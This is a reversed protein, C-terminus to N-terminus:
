KKQRSHSRGNGDCMPREKSKVGIYSCHNKERLEHTKKIKGLIEKICNQTGKIKRGGDVKVNEKRRTDQRLIITKYLKHFYVFMFVLSCMCMPIQM